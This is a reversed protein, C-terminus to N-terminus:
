KKIGVKKVSSWKSYYTKEKVTKYARVRIYYTKRKLKTITKVNKKVKVTKTTKKTFKKLTAYQIQYGEADAVRKLMVKIKRNNKTRVAKRIASKKVTIESTVSDTTERNTAADTNNESPNQKSEDVPISKDKEWVAYLTLNTYADRGQIEGDFDFKSDETKRWSSWHIYKYNDGSGDKKSNWGKFIYGYRVPIYHFIAMTTGSNAGGLYDYKKIGENEITGGNADLSLVYSYPRQDEPLDPNNLIGNSDVGYFKESKYLATIKVTVDDKFFSKNVETVQRGNYGWGCFICGSREATYKSLDLSSFKEADSVIRIKSEGAIKGAFGDLIIYYKGENKLPEDSFRPYLVCGNTYTAEEGESWIEGSYSFDSVKLETVKGLRRNEWDGKFVNRGNFVEVGKTLESVNVTTEGEKLNFRIIKFSKGDIEEDEDMGTTNLVLAYKGDKAIEMANVNKTSFHIALLSFVFVTLALFFNKRKM